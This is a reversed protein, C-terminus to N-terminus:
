GDALGAAADAPRVLTLRAKGVVRDALLTWGPPAPEEARATEICAITAPGTWGKAAAAALAPQWLGSNYPPDLFVIDAPGAPAAPLATADAALLRARAKADLVAINAAIARRAAPDREVFFAGAAGRSLSEMGLAGSGAFLDLVCLGEFSGIRSVLMSFLTERARNATPRTTAGDPTALLRRRWQGAIIRM